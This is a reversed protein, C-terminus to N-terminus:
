GIRGCGNPLVWTGRSPARLAVLKCCTIRCESNRRRTNRCHTPPGRERQTSAPMHALPGPFQARCPLSAWRSNACVGPSTPQLIHRHPRTPWPNSNALGCRLIRSRRAFPLSFNRSRPCGRRGVEGVDGRACGHPRWRTPGRRSDGNALDTTDATADARTTVSPSSGRGCWSVSHSRCASSQDARAAGIRKSRDRVERGFGNACRCRPARRRSRSSGRRCNPQTDDSPSRAM